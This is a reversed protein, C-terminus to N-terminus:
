LKRRLTGRDIVVVDRALTRFYGDAGDLWCQVTITDGPFVVNSFRGSMGRFRAVEGGCAERLLLRATYGYTCMGHLIPRDFGALKAFEPDSHLPNRDGTLRYLLAQDTPITVSRTFDPEREPAAWATSTGREGGFGGAGRIYISTRCTALAEGTAADTSVADTVVLADRGKDYVGVLTGVTRATGAVPLPRHLEFSQEGHLVMATNFDGALEVGAAFGLLNAFSPLVQLTRNASNETTLALEEASDAQGAGVALAYLMVDDQTWTRKRPTGTQGANEPKLGM